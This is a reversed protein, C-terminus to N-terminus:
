VLHWIPMFVRMHRADRQRPISERRQRSSANSMGYALSLVSLVSVKRM